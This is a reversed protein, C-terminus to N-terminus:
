ADRILDFNYKTLLKLVYEEVTEKTKYVATLMKMARMIAITNSVNICQQKLKRYNNVFNCLETSQEILLKYRPHLVTTSTLNAPNTVPKYSRPVTSVQNILESMEVNIDASYMIVYCNTEIMTGDVIQWNYETGSPCYKVLPTVGIAHYLPLLQKIPVGISDFTIEYENNWFSLKNKGVNYSLLLNNLHQMLEAKSYCLPQNIILKNNDYAYWPSWVQTCIAVILNRAAEIDKPTSRSIMSEIIRLLHIKLVDLYKQPYGLDIRDSWKISKNDIMANNTDCYSHFLEFPEQTSDCDSVNVILNIFREVNAAPNVLYAIDQLKVQNYVPTLMAVNPITPTFVSYTQTLTPDACSLGTAVSDACSLGTLTPKVPFQQLIAATEM